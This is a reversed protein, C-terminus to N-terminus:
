AVLAKRRSRVTAGVAGLGVLMMAWAAPEPAASFVQFAEQGIAPAGALSEGDLQYLGVSPSFTGFTSLTLDDSGSLGIWYTGAALSIPAFMAVDTSTTGDPNATSSTLAALNIEALNVASPKGGADARLRVTVSQPNNSFTTSAWLSVGDVPTTQSLTFEMMFNQSSTINSWYAQLLPGAAPGSGDYVVTSASASAVLSAGVLVASAGLQVRKM